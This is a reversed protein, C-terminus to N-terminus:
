FIFSKFNLNCAVFISLCLHQNLSKDINIANFIRDSQVIEISEYIRHHHLDLGRYHFLLYINTGDKNFIYKRGSQGEDNRIVCRQMEKISYTTLETMDKCDSTIASVCSIVRFKEIM